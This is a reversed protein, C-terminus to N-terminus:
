GKVAGATMGNIILKQAFIYVLVVPIICMILVAMLEGPIKRSSGASSAFQVPIAAMTMYQPKSIFTIAIQLENWAAMFTNVILISLGPLSVPLMVRTFIQWSSAGDIRSAEMMDNPLGDYYIKLLLLGFIANGTIYPFVQSVPNNVLGLFKIITFLPFITASTPLMMGTMLLLFAANKGPFHLKSFAFASLSCVTVTGILTLGVVIVSNLLNRFLNVKGLANGYNAFGAGQLSKMFTVYLPFLVLIGAIILVIASFFQFASIRVAKKM